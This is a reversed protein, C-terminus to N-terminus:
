NKEFAFRCHYPVSVPLRRVACEVGDYQAQYWIICHYYLLKQRKTNNSYSVSMHEIMKVM